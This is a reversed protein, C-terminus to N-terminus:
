GSCRAAGQLCPPEIGEVCSRAMRELWDEDQGGIVIQTKGDHVFRVTPRHRGFKAKVTVIRLPGITSEEIVDEKSPDPPGYPKISITGFGFTRYFYFPEADARLIYNPPLPMVCGFLKLFMTSESSGAVAVLDPDPAREGARIPALHGGTLMLLGAVASTM